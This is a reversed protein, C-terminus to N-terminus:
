IRLYKDFEIGTTTLGQEDRHLSEWSFKCANFLVRLSQQEITSTFNTSKGPGVFGVIIGFHM